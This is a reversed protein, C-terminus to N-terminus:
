LLELLENLKRLFYYFKRVPDDEKLDDKPLKELQRKKDELQVKLLEIHSKEDSIDAEKKSIIEHINRLDEDVDSRAQSNLQSPDTDFAEVKSASELLEKDENDENILEEFELELQECEEILQATNNQMEECNLYRKSVNDALHRLEEHKDNMVKDLEKWNLELDNVEKALQEDFDEDYFRLLDEKSECDSIKQLLKEQTQQDLYALSMATLVQKQVQRKNQLLKSDNTTERALQELTTISGPKTTKLSQFEERLTAATTPM